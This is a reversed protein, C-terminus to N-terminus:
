GNAVRRVPASVIEHQGGQDQLDGVFEYREGDYIFVDLRTIDAGYPVYLVRDLRIDLSHYNAQQSTSPTDMFAKLDHTSTNVVEKPPYSSDDVIRETRNVTIVHPYEENAKSLYM